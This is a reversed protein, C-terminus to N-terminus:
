MGKFVCPCISSSFVKHEVVWMRVCVSLTSNAPSSSPIITSLCLTNSPAHQGEAIWEDWQGAQTQTITRTHTQTIAFLFFVAFSMSSSFSSRANSNSRILNQLFTLVFTLLVLVHSPLLKQKEKVPKYRALFNLPLSSKHKWFERKM